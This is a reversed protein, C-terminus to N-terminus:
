LDLKVIVALLYSPLIRSSAHPCGLSVFWTASINSYQYNRCAISALMLPRPAKKKNKRKKSMVKGRTHVLNILYHTARLGISPHLKFKCCAKMAPVGVTRCYDPFGWGRIKVKRRILQCPEPGCSAIAFSITRIILPGTTVIM